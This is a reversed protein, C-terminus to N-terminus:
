EEKKTEGKLGLKDKLYADRKVGIEKQIIETADVFQDNEFHDLAKKINDEKEM